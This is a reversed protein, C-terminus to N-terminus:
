PPRNLSEKSGIGDNRHEYEVQPIAFCLGGVEWEEEDTPAFSVAPAQNASRSIGSQGERRMGIEASHGPILVGITYSPCRSHGEHMLSHHVTDYAHRSVHPYLQLKADDEQSNSSSSTM